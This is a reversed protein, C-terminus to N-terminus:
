LGPATPLHSTANSERQNLAERLASEFPMSPAVRHTHRQWRSPHRPAGGVLWVPKPSETLMQELWAVQALFHARAPGSPPQMGYALLVADASGLANALEFQAIRWGFENAGVASIQLANQTHFAFLNSIEVQAYGLASAAMQVRGRTRQGAAMPPNLCIALLKGAATM